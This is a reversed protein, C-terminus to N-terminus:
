NKDDVLIARIFYRDAVGDAGSEVIVRFLVGRSRDIEARGIKGPGIEGVGCIMALVVYCVVAIPIEYKGVAIGYIERGVIGVGVGSLVASVCLARRGFEDVIGRVVGMLCAAVQAELVVESLPAVDRDRCLAEVVM